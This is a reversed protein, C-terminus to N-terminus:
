GFPHVGFVMSSIALIGLLLLACAVVLTMSVPYPSLGRIQSSAIGEERDARLALMFSIHYAIGVVLMGIGLAVLATGFNRPANAGISVQSLSQASSFVQYITFGFGILSLSTRIVSMLTREASLRTRQYAMGTRRAGMQLSPNGAAENVSEGAAQNADNLSM